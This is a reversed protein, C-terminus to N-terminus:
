NSDVQDTQPIIQQETEPSIKATGFLSKLTEQEQVSLQPPIYRKGTRRDILGGRDIFYPRVREETM